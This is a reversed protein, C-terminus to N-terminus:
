KGAVAARTVLRVVTILITVLVDASIRKHEVILKVHVAYFMNLKM